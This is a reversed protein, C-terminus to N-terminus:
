NQLSIVLKFDRGWQPLGSTLESFIYPVVLVPVFLTWSGLLGTCLAGEERWVSSTKSRLCHVAALKREVWKRPGTRVWLRERLDWPFVNPARKRVCWSWSLPRLPPYLLGWVELGLKCTNQSLNHHMFKQIHLHITPEWM